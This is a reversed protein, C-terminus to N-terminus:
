LESSNIHSNRRGLSHLRRADKEIAQNVPKVLGFLTRASFDRCIREVLM